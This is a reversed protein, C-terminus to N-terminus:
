VGIRLRAHQVAPTIIGQSVGIIQQSPYILGTPSDDSWTPTGNASFSVGGVVDIDSDGDLNGLPSFFILNDPRILLPNIGSALSAAENDTLAVDWVAPWLISGNMFAGPSPRGNCGIAFRQVGSVPRNDSNTGKNGGNLYVARSTNSAWVGVAHHWVGASYGTSAAAYSYQSSYLSQAVLTFPTNGGRASLGYLNGVASNTASIMLSYNVNSAVPKFWCAMSFPHSSIVPSAADLLYESSASAFVRAM